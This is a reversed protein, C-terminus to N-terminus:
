YRKMYMKVEDLPVTSGSRTAGYLGSVCGGAIAQGVTVDDMKKGTTQVTCSTWHNMFHLGYMDTGSEAINESLNLEIKRINPEVFVKKMQIM